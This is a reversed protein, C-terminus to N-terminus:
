AAGRRHRLALGILGLGISPAWVWQLESRIVRFGWESFFRSVGIPSVAIPRWPLFYRQNSFPSLFAVGLGGATLADLIGHSATSLLVFLFAQAPGTNLRRHLAAAIVALVVAFSLSHTLGRHGLVHGYPIGFRFGVTDLDPLVSCAVGTAMLQWSVATSGLALSLGVPVAPHSLVSPM